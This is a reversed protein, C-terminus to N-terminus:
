YAKRRYTQTGQLTVKEVFVHGPRSKSAVAVPIAPCAELRKPTFCGRNETGFDRDEPSPAFVHSRFKPISPRAGVHNPFDTKHSSEGQFPISPRLGEPARSRKPQLPHAPYANRGETSFDRDDDGLTSLNGARPGGASRAGLPHAAYDSKHTTTDDFPVDNRGVGTDMMSHRPAARRQQIPGHNVYALSNTTVGEFPADHPKWQGPASARVAPVFQGSYAQRAESTVSLLSLLLLLCIYVCQDHAKTSPRADRTGAAATADTRVTPTM